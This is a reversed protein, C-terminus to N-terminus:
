EAPEEIAGARHYGGPKADAITASVGTLAVASSMVALVLRARHTKRRFIYRREVLVHM